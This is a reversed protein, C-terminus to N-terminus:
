EVTGKLVVRVSGSGSAYTVYIQRNSSRAAALTASAVGTSCSHSSVLTTGSTTEGVNLVIGNGGVSWIKEIIHGEPLVVRASGGLYGSATLDATLQWDRKAVLHTCGSASLLAHHANGSRDRLEFGCGADCDLDWLGGIYQLTSSSTLNNTITASAIEIELGGTANTNGSGNGYTTGNIVISDSGSTKLYVKKGVTLSAATYINTLSGWRDELAAGGLAQYASVEDDALGRNWMAAALITGRFPSTGASDAAGLVSFAGTYNLSDAVTAELAGDLYMTLMGEAKKLRVWVAEDTAVSSASELMDGLGSIGAILTNGAGFRLTLANSAAGGILYNDSGWADRKLLFLFDFNSRGLTLAPLTMFGGSLIVGGRPRLTSTDVEAMVSGALKGDAGLVPVNGSSTGANLVAASGLGLNLRSASASALESLNQAGQLYRADSQTSTYYLDGTEPPESISGSAGDELVSVPGAAVTIVRGPDDSTLAWLVLWKHGAAINAQAATFTFAGHQATGANWDAAALATNLNAATLTKTMLVEASPEPPTHLEDSNKIELTVSTINSVDLLTSGSFLAFEVQLDNGRYFAPTFNTLADCPADLRAADAALRIRRRSLTTM